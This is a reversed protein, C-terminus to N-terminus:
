IFSEEMIFIKKTTFFINCYSEDYEDLVNQSHISRMEYLKETLLRHTYHKYAPLGLDNHIVHPMTRIAMGMERSFIIQKQLPNPVVHAHVVKVVERMRAM